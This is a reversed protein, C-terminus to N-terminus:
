DNTESEVANTRKGKCNPCTPLDADGSYPWVNGCDECARTEPQRPDHGTRDLHQRPTEYGELREGREALYVADGCINCTLENM